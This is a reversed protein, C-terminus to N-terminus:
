ISLLKTARRINEFLSVVYHLQEVLPRTVCVRICRLLLDLSIGVVFAHRLCM